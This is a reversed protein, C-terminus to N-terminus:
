PLAARTGSAGGNRPARMSCTPSIIASRCNLLKSSATPTQISRSLPSSPRQALQPSGQRCLPPRPWGETITGAYIWMPVTRGARAFGMAEYFAAADGDATLM